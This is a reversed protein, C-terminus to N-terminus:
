RLKYYYEEFLDAMLDQLMLNINYLLNHDHVSNLEIEGNILKYNIFLKKGFAYTIQIDIIDDYDKADENYERTMILKITVLEKQMEIILVKMDSSNIGSDSLLRTVYPGDDKVTRIDNKYFFVKELIRIFDSFECLVVFSPSTNRLKKITPKIDMAEYNKRKIWTKFREFISAGRKCLPKEYLLKAFTNYEINTLTVREIERLEPQIIIKSHNKKKSM